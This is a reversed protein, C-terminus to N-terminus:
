IEPRLVNLPFLFVRKMAFKTRRRVDGLTLLTQVITCSVESGHVGDIVVVCHVVGEGYFGKAIEANCSENNCHLPGIKRRWCM